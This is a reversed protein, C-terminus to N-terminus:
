ADLVINYNATMVWDFLHVLDFLHGKLGNEDIDYSGTVADVSEVTYSRCCQYLNWCRLLDRDSMSPRLTEAFDASFSEDERQKEQMRHFAATFYDYQRQMRPGNADEEGPLITRMCLEAQRNNLTLEEGQRMLRDYASFDDNLCMPVGDLMTNCQEIVSWDMTIVFSIDAQFLLDELVAETYETGQSLAQALVVREPDGDVIMAPDLLLPKVTRNNHDIALLMSFDARDNIEVEAASDEISLLVLDVNSKQKYHIGGYEVYEQPVVDEPIEARWPYPENKDVYWAVFLAVLFFLYVLSWFILSKKSSEQTRLKKIPSRDMFNAM